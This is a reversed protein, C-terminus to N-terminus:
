LRMRKTIERIGTYASTIAVLVIVKRTGWSFTWLQVRYCFELLSVAGEYEVFCNRLIKGTLIVVTFQNFFANAFIIGAFYDVM